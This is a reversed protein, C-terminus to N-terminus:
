NPISPAAVKDSSSALKRETANLPVWGLAVAVPLGVLVLLVALALAGIFLRM